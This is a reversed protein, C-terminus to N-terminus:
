GVGVEGGMDVGSGVLVAQQDGEVHEKMGSEM